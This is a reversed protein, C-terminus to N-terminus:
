VSGGDALALAEDVAQAQTLEMGEAWADAFAAADLRERVRAVHGELLREDAPMNVFGSASREATAASWLRVARPDDTRAAAICGAGELLLPVIVRAGAAAARPLAQALASSATQLDGREVEVRV